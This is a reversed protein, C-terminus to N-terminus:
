ITSSKGEKTNELQEPRRVMWVPKYRKNSTIGRDAIALAVPFIILHVLLHWSAIYLLVEIM